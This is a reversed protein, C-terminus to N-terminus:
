QIRGYKMKWGPFSTDFGSGRPAPVRAKLALCEQKGESAKAYSPRANNRALGAYSALAFCPEEKRM